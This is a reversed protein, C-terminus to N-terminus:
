SVLERLAMLCSRTKLDSISSECQLLDKISILKNKAHADVCFLKKGFNEGRLHMLYSLGHLVRGCVFEEIQSYLKEFGSQAPGFNLVTYFQALAQKLVESETISKLDNVHLFQVHMLDVSHEAKAIAILEEQCDMAIIKLNQFQKALERLHYGCGVGLVIAVHAGQLQARHLNLWQESERTANISSALYRGDRRVVTEDNKSKVREIIM